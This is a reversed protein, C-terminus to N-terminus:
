HLEPIGLEMLSARPRRERFTLTNTEENWDMDHNGDAWHQPVAYYIDAGCEDCRVPIIATSGILTEAPADIIFRHHMNTCLVRKM